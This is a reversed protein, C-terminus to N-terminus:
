KGNKSVRPVKPVEEHKHPSRKDRKREFRTLAEAEQEDTPKIELWQWGYKPHFFPKYNDFDEMIVNNISLYLPM